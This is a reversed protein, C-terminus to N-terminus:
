TSFHRWLKRSRNVLMRFSLSILRRWHRPRRALFLLYFLHGCTMVCSRDFKKRFEADEKEVLRAHLASFMATRVALNSRVRHAYSYPVIRFASFLQPIYAIPHRFAIQCCLFFDAMAELSPDYPGYQLLLDRRYLAAPSRVILGNARCLAITEEPYLVHPSSFPLRSLPKLEEPNQDEFTAMDGYCLGIEPHDKAIKMCSAFFKPLVKDDAAILAIWDGKAERVGRNVSLNVGSNKENRLVRLSPIQKQYLELLGQSGDTSADDIIIWEDPLRSQSLISQICEALYHGHNYFPIVVSLKSM